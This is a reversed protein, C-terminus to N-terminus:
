GPVSIPEPLKQHVVIGSLLLLGILNPFAMLGNFIDAMAWVLDLSIVTGLMVFGTYLVRYPAVAKDGFL